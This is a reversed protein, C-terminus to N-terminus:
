FNIYESPNVATGQYWLEFHLHEGTDDSSGVIAISTGATVKDGMKRLLKQNQKYISVINNEHQIAITYGQGDSWGDYIVTGPLVAMVVSNAPAKVDVFPHLIEDYAQLIQGKLPTFFHMGEIPLSREKQDSIEFQEAENVIDRLLTDRGALYEASMSSASNADALLMLSDIPIPAAGELVNILNDTYFEWRSIVTELSDIKIANQVAERRTHADPYGPISTKIPTFAILSFASGMLVVIISIVLVIFGSRSFRLVGLQRHTKDDVLSLRFDRVKPQNNTESM